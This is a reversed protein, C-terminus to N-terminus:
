RSYERRWNKMVEQGQDKKIEKLASLEQCIEQFIPKLAAGVEQGIAQPTLNTMTQAANSLALATRQEADETTSLVAIDDLGNRLKDRHKKRAEASWALVLMFLSACALGVLSSTFATKM